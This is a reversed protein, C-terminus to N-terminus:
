QNQGDITRAARKREFVAIWHDSGPTYAAAEEGWLYRTQRLSVIEVLGVRDLRKQYEDFWQFVTQDSDPRVQWSTWIKVFVVFRPDAAEIERIMQRQMASAYPHAEMLAYTYVFGTAAPRRAYFYIEPESGVVAIRDEPSTRERIYRAIEVAEPFPNRGYLARMVQPPTGVFLIGRELYVVHALPVIALAIPIGYRLAPTRVSALARAVSDVAFGALLALTPLLLIFYQSRFYLGGSTALVSAGGFLGVVLRRPRAAPDVFLALLGLGALGAALYSTPLISGLANGLNAAGQTLSTGTAYEFAYTVTWFRFNAFTGALAMLACLVAFPGAAGAVLAACAQLRRRADGPMGLLVYLVAFLAFAGGSQKVLFALGFLAGSGLFALPRPREVARLLVLVGLLVFPVVFHEAYATPSFLRPSLSLSAFAASAVIGVTANFVRTAVLFMLVITAASVVLLALHIGWPTQGFVALIAAYVGYIGPMKFNYATAYPPIGQLLLQGFYAYEGEDRDLPIDLLRSRIAASTLVVLALLCVIWLRGRRHTTATSDDGSM